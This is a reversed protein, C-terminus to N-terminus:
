IAAGVYNSVLRELRRALIAGCGLCQIQASYFRCRDIGEHVFKNYKASNRGRRKKLGMSKTFDTVASKVSKSDSTLVLGQRAGEYAAHQATDNLLLAQTMGIMGIFFTLIIPFM